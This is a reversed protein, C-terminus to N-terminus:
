RTQKPSGQDTGISLERIIESLAQELSPLDGHGGAGKPDPSITKFDQMAKVTAEDFIM